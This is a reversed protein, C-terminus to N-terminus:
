KLLCLRKQLIALGFGRFEDAGTGQVLVRLFGVEQAQRSPRQYLKLSEILRVRSDFM